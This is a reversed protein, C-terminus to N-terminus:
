WLLKLPEPKVNSFGFAVPEQPQPVENETQVGGVVDAPELNEGEGYACELRVTVQDSGATRISGHHDDVRTGFGLPDGSGQFIPARDGVCNEERVRVQIM